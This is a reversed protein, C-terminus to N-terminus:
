KNDPGEEVEDIVGLSQLQRLYSEVEQDSLEEPELGESERFQVTLAAQLQPHSGLISVLLQRRGEASRPLDQSGARFTAVTQEYEERAGRLTQRKHASVARFLIGRVREAEEDPDRGGARVEDVVEADSAELVSEALTDTLSRLEDRYDRNGSSM